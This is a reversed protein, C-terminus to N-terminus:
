PQPPTGSVGPSTRLGVVGLIAGAVTVATATKHDLTNFVAPQSLWGVGAIISGWVTKSKFATSFWKM